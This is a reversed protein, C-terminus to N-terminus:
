GLLNFNQFKCSFSTSYFGGMDSTEFQSNIYSIYKSSIKALSAEPGTTGLKIGWGYGFDPHKFKEEKMDLFYGDM